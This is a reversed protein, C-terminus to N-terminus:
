LKSIAANLAAQIKDIQHDLVRVINLLRAIEVANGDLQGQHRLEKVEIATEIIDFRMANLRQSLELLKPGAELLLSRLLDQPQKQNEEQNPHVQASMM